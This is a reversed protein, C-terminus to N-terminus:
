GKSIQESKVGGPVEFFSYTDVDTWFQDLSHLAPVHPLMGRIPRSPPSTVSDPEPASVSSTVTISGNSPANTTSTGFGLGGPQHMGNFLSLFADPPVLAASHAANSDTNASNLDSRLGPVPTALYGHVLNNSDYYFGVIKGSDTIGYAFTGQFPGTGANPDDLTTYHGGSLLFSHFVNNADLYTGTIQGSDNIMGGFTQVGNPDNFTTFQGSNFLYGHEVNNADIYQGVIQGSANIGLAFNFVGNPDDITTYQGGSLLYGHTVGNSDTYGGVIKGSANIAIAQDFDSPATGANPDDITTYKGSSLLFSHQVSNADLYFGVIQGSANLGFAGTGQGAATGASPDDFTAYQGNRLLFGHTVNNADGYNGSIQGSSNIGVAFTGQIGNGTTGANPVDVTQFVYGNLLTRDELAELRPLYSDARHRIGRTKQM